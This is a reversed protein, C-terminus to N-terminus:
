RLRVAEVLNILRGSQRGTPPIAALRFPVHFDLEDPTLDKRARDLTYTEILGLWSLFLDARKDTVVILRERM